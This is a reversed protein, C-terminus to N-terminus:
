STCAFFTTTMFKRLVNALKGNKIKSKNTLMKKNPSMNLGLTLDFMYANLRNRFFTITNTRGSIMKENITFPTDLKLPSDNLTMRIRTGSTQRDFKEPNMIDYIHVLGRNCVPNM